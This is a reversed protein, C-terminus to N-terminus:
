PLITTLPGAPLMLGFGYRFTAFILASALVAVAGYVALPPRIARPTLVIFQVFLYLGTAIPFGVRGLAAVYAAILVLTLGVTWMDSGPQAATEAEARVETAVAADGIPGHGAAVAEAPDGMVTTTNQLPLKWKRFVALLEILGLGIMMAALLMPVTSADVGERNPVGMSMGMYVVGTGLIALAVILDKHRM